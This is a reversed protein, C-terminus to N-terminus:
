FPRASLSDAVQLALANLRSAAYSADCTFRDFWCRRCLAVYDDSGGILNALNTNTRYTFFGESKCDCCVASLKDVKECKAALRSVNSFVEREFTAGLGAALVVKGANAWDELVEDCDDFFQVEDVAIVDYHNVIDMLVTRLDRVSLADRKVRDHTVVESTETYRTDCQPKILLTRRGALRYRGLRRLLETTKGAFMPGTILQIEGGRQM